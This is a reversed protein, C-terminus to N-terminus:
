CPRRPRPPAPTGRDHSRTYEESAVPGSHSPRAAPATRGRPSDPPTRNPVNCAIDSKSPQADSPPPPPPHRCGPGRRPATEAGQGGVGATGYEWSVGFVGGRWRRPGELVAGQRETTRSTPGRCRHPCRVQRPGPGTQPTTCGCSNDTSAPLLDRHPSINREGTAAAGRHRGANFAPVVRDGSPVRVPRLLGRLLGPRSCCQGPIAALPSAWTHCGM